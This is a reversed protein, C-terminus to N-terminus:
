LKIGVWLLLRRVFEDTAICFLSHALWVRLFQGTEIEEIMILGVSTPEILPYKAFQTLTPHFLQLIIFIWWDVLNVIAENSKEFLLHGLRITLLICDENWLDHHVQRFSEILNLINNSEFVWVLWDVEGIQLVWVTPDYAQDAPEERNLWWKVM